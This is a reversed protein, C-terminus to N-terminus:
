IVWCNRQCLPGGIALRSRNDGQGGRHRGAKRGNGLSKSGLENPIRAIQALNGNRYGARILRVADILAGADQVNDQGSCQGRIYLQAEKGPHRLNHSRARRPGAASSGDLSELKGQLPVLGAHNQIDQWSWLSGYGVSLAPRGM